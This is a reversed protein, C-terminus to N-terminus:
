TRSWSEKRLLASLANGFFGSSPRGSKGGLKTELAVLAKTVASGRAHEYMPIGLNISEAVMKFDSPINVVETGQLAREVDDISIPSNKEYRNVVVLVQSPLVGYADFIQMMRKADRLHSLTQQVVLVIRSAKELVPIVEPDPRRPVDVVLHEYHAMLKDLLLSLSEAQEAHSKILIEPEAALMRLGSEHQTMYADLAVADLSHVSEVVEQLGHRLEIDFYQALSEFQMDLSLLATSKESASTLIHAVNCAIFTAGSGGKANVFATLEGAAAGSHSELQAAVRDISACLDEASVVGPLFDRAGAQMAFRMTQADGQEALIIMPPRGAAKEQTLAVLDDHGTDRLAMIVIDPSFTLGWLPDAHGNEIHRSDVKYRKNDALKSELEELASRSRSAILVHPRSRM